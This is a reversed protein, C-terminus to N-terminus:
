RTREQFGRGSKKRGKPERRINTTPSQGVGLLEGERKSVELDGRMIHNSKTADTLRVGQGM